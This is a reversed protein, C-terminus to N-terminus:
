YKPKTKTRERRQGGVEEKKTETAREKECYTLYLFALILAVFILAPLIGYGFISFFVEAGM